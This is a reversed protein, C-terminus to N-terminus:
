VTSIITDNRDDSDQDRQHQRRDLRGALRGPPRLTRVIEFLNPERQVVIVIGM